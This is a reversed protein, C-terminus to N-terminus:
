LCGGVLRETKQWRGSLIRQHATKIAAEPDTRNVNAKNYAAEIYRGEEGSCVFDGNSLPFRTTV